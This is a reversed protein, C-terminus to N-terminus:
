YTNHHEEEFGEGEDTWTNHLNLTPFMAKIAKLATDPPGWATDFTYTLGVPQADTLKPECVDWKTGWNKISWEYWTPLNDPNPSTTGELAKPMPIFSRLSFPVRDKGMRGKAMKKFFTIAKSNGAVQLENHIWNSM